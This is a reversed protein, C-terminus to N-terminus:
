RSPNPKLFYDKDPLLDRLRSYDGDMSAERIVTPKLFIVLETKANIDKRQALLQGIGPVQRVGPVTDEINTVSDQMLGGLVATQGSQVRMISEMERTQIVPILSAIGPINCGTTPVPIGCPNALSPNPDAVDTLKRSITPRINLLVTDNESIQPIVAMILGVPVSNVTTTFTTIAPTNAAAVTNASVTFYVLNDVVKLTATQNNLVSLKPSSLVKVDGFSELLKITGAIGLGPGTAFSTIFNNTNIAAPGAGSSQSFGLGAGGLLRTWDIGRQYQNNLEVEAITAEILVQRKASSMVQDLFEQVKEQQRSTARISLVGTEANAIVSAAERFEVVAQPAAAAGQAAPAGAAGAAPAAAPAAPPHNMSVIKDTERLIDKVNGILTEWFKNISTTKVVSTSNNVAGTGGGGGTTTAGSGSVNTSLNGTSTSDRSLNVYDVRYIRLYPTDRMVSLTQGDMEYRMDVQRAIRGLLQPLTQEIANLTVTGTVGPHIDVNLKADRALAFLLDQVRVNNVVVSYTEARPAATPPPLIPVVQVPAPISGETPHSDGALIHDPSPKLSTQSCGTLALVLAAVIAADALGAARSPEGM